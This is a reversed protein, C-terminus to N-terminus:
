KRGKPLLIRKKTKLFSGHSFGRLVALVRALKSKLELVALSLIGEQCKSEGENEGHACLGRRRRDREASARACASVRAVDGSVKERMMREIGKMLPLGKM